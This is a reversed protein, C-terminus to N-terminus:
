FQDNKTLHGVKLLSKVMRLFREFLPVGQVPSVPQKKHFGSQVMTVNLTNLSM